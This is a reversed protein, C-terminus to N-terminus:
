VSIHRDGAANTPRPSASSNPTRLSDVVAKVLALIGSIQRIPGALSGSVFASARGATDLLDTTISDLRSAQRRANHIVQAVVSKADDSQIRLTRTMAAVDISTQEIKPAVRGFAERAENIFPTVTASLHEIQGHISAAAKRLVFLLAVLVLAQTLLALAVVGAIVFLLIQSAQSSM